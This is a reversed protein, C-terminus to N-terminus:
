FQQIEETSLPYGGIYKITADGDVMKVLLYRRVDSVTWKRAEEPWKEIPESLFRDMEESSIDVDGTYYSMEDFEIDSVIMYFTDDAVEWAKEVTRIVTLSNYDTPVIYFAGDEYAIIQNTLDDSLQPLTLESTDLTVGFVEEVKEAVAGESVVFFIDHSPLDAEIDEYLIVYSIMQNFDTPSDARVNFLNLVRESAAQVTTPEVETGIEGIDDFAYAVQDYITAVLSASSDAEFAFSKTGFDSEIIPKVNGNYLERQATFAEEAIAEGDIEYSDAGNHTSKFVTKEFQADKTGIVYITEENITTGQATQATSEYYGYSGDKLEILGVSLDCASCDDMAVTRTYISSYSEGNIGWIEIVYDDTERLPVSSPLYSSGKLLVFLEDAGDQNFDVLETYVIGMTYKSSYFETLDPVYGYNNVLEQLTYAAMQHAEVKIDGIAENGKTEGQEHKDILQDPEEEVESCAAIFLVVIFFSFFLWKKM